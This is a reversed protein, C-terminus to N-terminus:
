RKEQMLDERILSEAREHTNLQLSITAIQMMTERRREELTEIQTILQQRLSDSDSDFHTGEAQLAVLQSGIKDVRAQALLYEMQIARVRARIESWNRETSFMEQLEAYQVPPHNANYRQMWLDVAERERVARNDALTAEEKCETYQGTAEKHQCEAQLVKEMQDHYRKMAAESLQMSEQLLGKISRNGVLKSLKQEDENIRDRCIKCDDDTQAIQNLLMEMRRQLHNLDNEQMARQQEKEMIKENLTLCEKTLEQINM